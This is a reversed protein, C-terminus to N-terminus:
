RGRWRDTPNVGDSTSRSILPPAMLSASEGLEPGTGISSAIPRM